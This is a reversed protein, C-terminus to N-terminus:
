IEATLYQHSVYVSTDIVPRALGNRDFDDIDFIGFVVNIINDRLNSNERLEVGGM